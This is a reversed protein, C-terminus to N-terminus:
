ILEENVEIKMGTLSSKIASLILSLKDIDNVMYFLQLVFKL